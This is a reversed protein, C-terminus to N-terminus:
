RDKRVLHIAATEWRKNLTFFRGALNELVGPDANFQLGVHVVAAQKPCPVLVFSGPTRRRLRFTSLDARQNADSM